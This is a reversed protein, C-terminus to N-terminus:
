DCFIVNCDYIKLLKFSGRCIKDKRHIPYVFLYASTKAQFSINFFPYDFCGLVYNFSLCSNTLSGSLETDAFAGDVFIDSGPKLKNIGCKGVFCSLNKVDVFLLAMDSATKGGFFFVKVLVLM